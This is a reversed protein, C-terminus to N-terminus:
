LSVQVSDSPGASKTMEPQGDVEDSVTVPVVEHGDLFLESRFDLWDGLDDVLCQVDVIILRSVGARRM